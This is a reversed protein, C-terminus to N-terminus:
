GCSEMNFWLLCPKNVNVVWSIYTACACSDAHWIVHDNIYSPFKFNALLLTLVSKRHFKLVNINWVYKWTISCMNQLVSKTETYRVRLYYFFHKTFILKKIGVKALCWYLEKLTFLLADKSCWVCQCQGNEFIVYTTSTRCQKEIWAHVSEVIDTRVFHIHLSRQISM